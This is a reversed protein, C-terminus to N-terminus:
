PKLEEVPKAEIETAKNRGLNRMKRLREEFVAETTGKANGEAVARVLGMALSGFESAEDPKLVKKGEYAIISMEEVSLAIDTLRKLSLMDFEGDENEMQAIKKELLGRVRSAILQFHARNAKANVPVLFKQKRPGVVSLSPAYAEQKVEPAPVALEAGEATAPAPTAEFEPPLEEPEDTM